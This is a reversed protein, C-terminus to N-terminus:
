KLHLQDPPSFRLIIKSPDSPNVFSSASSISCSLWDCSPDPDSVSVVLWDFARSTILTSSSYESENFSSNSLFRGWPQIALTGVDLNGFKRWFKQDSNETPFNARFIKPPIKRLIVHDGRFIATYEFRLVNWNQWFHSWSATKSSWAANLPSGTETRIAVSWSSSSKSLFTRILPLFYPM